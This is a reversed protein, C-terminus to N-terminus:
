KGGLALLERVKELVETSDGITLDYKDRVIDMAFEIDGGNIFCIGLAEWACMEVFDADITILGDRDRLDSLRANEELTYKLTGTVLISYTALIVSLVLLVITIAKKKM